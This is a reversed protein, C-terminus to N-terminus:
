DDEFRIRDARVRNDSMLMGRVEVERGNQLDRCPGKSFMTQETTYVTRSQVTFTLAPCTGSVTGAEGVLTIESVPTPSTPPPTPTPTPPTPTPTPPPTPTPTPSPTPTPTPPAPAPTPAPPAPVPSAAAQQTASARETAVAITVPREAGTNALVVVRLRAAGSGSSPTVTAWPQESRATWSCASHTNVSLEADGGASGFTGPIGSLEFRCAAGTQAIHVRQDAITVEAQRTVPEPNELVRYSVTGEGQGQAASTLSIWASTSAATWACDRSVTM